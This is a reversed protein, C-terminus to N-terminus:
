HFKLKQIMKKSKNEDFRLSTSDVSNEISEVNFNSTANKSNYNLESTPTSIREIKEIGIVSIIPKLMTEIKKLIKFMIEDREIDSLREYFTDIIRKHYEKNAFMEGIFFRVAECYQNHIENETIIYLHATSILYEAFDDPAESLEIFKKRTESIHERNFCIEITSKLKEYVELPMDNACAAARESFTGRDKANRITESVYDTVIQKLGDDVLSAVNESAKNFMDNLNM